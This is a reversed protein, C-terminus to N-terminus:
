KLVPINTYESLWKEQLQKLTGDESLKNVAKTVKDTLKSGKPLVIGQGNPDESGNIQGLVKGNDGTQKSEVMNVSTPTDVVLIDIQGNKLAAVADDNNNYLKIDEKIKDKAVLYSTSGSMAGIVADKIDALSTASAFKNDDKVVLAQTTNYYSPSFDVAQKRQETISFQQINMDWDKAGPAIASDFTSRTWVVDKQDYGLEKAVAYAVAAEYGEGSEPKNNLVWPSYAPEGTAITLKGETVTESTSSASTSGCAATFALLAATAGALITRALHAKNIM